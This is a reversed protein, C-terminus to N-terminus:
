AASIDRQLEIACRVAEIASRFEVVLRDPTARGIQGGHGAIQPDILKARIEMWRLRKRLEGHAVDRIPAAQLAMVVHRQDSGAARSKGDRRGSDRCSRAASRSMPTEGPM